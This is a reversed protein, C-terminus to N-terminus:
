VVEYSASFAVGILMCCPFKSYESGPCFTRVRGFECSAVSGCYQFGMLWLWYPRQECFAMGLGLVGMGERMLCRAPRARPSSPV